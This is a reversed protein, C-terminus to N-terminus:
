ERINREEIGKETIMWDIGTRPNWSDYVNYDVLGRNYLAFLTSLSVDLDLASYLGELSMKRLAIRMPKTIKKM